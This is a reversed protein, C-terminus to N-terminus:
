SPPEPVFGEIDRVHGEREDRWRARVRMGTRMQSPDDVLVAHLLPTDAGDLKVMAWAFPRDWPQHDRAESTWTWTVVEGTDAVPVMEALPEATEPDYEVPPVLVSGDPRRIGCLVGERLGTLFAGIVPGTTRTFPYELTLPAWLEGETM